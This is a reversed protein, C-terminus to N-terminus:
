NGYKERYFAVRGQFGRVGGAAVDEEVAQVGLGGEDEKVPSMNDKVTRAM